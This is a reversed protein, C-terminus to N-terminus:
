KLVVDSYKSKINISKNANEQIHYGKHVNTNYNKSTDIALVEPYEFKSATENVYITFPVSPLKCDVEGSEVSIDLNSFGDAVSNIYLEGLNTDVLAKDVLRDIIVKSSVSNLRLEKVEKLKVRESYDTKLQGYNWRQVEIPTYSARINTRQGDITSALLSAYSLSANINQTNAALKVEGHRVNMKLKVSKPMKIKISKKVKYKKNEGDTSLYFINPDDSEVRYVRQSRVKDRQRNRIKRLENRKAKADERVARAEERVARAQERVEDRQERLEVREKEREDALRKVNDSWERFQVKYEEDFNDDFNKKWEKLYKDGHKKYEDYDFEIHPIPPIPPLEPLVLVEPLEPISLSEILPEVFSIDPVWEFDFNYDSDVNWFSRGRSRTSVEIEKSNGTIEIVDKKFYNEAEEATAEELEVVAIIEVQNKNWTEFEIDAHSTNIDLVADSNVNFTEKYTKSKVEQGHLYLGHVLLAFLSFAILRNRNM